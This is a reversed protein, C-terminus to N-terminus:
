DVDTITVSVTATLGTYSRVQEAVEDQVQEAIDRCNRGWRSVLTISIEARGDEVVATVGDTPIRYEGDRPPFLRTAISAMTQALDPRLRVVGPMQCAYYAAVRAVVTGSVHLELHTPTRGTPESRAGSRPKV